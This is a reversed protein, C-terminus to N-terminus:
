PFVFDATNACICARIEGGLLGWVQSTPAVLLSELGTAPDYARQKVFCSDVV